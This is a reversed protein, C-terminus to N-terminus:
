KLEGSIPFTKTIYNLQSVMEPIGTQDFNIEFELTNGTGAFDMVSCDAEFHGLGDGKINIKVQGEITTFLAKGELNEYLRSLEHKFREFDTTMLYCEFQGSFGGAKVTVKSNIWNRDWDIDANPHALSILDIRIFNGGGVLEFYTM